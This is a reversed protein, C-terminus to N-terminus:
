TVEIKYVNLHNKLYLNYQIEHWISYSMDYTDHPDFPCQSDHKVRIQLGQIPYITKLGNLAPKEIDLSALLREKHWLELTERSIYDPNSFSEHLDYFINFNNKWSKIFKETIKASSGVWSGFTSRAWSLHFSLIWELKRVKARRLFWNFDPTLVSCTM